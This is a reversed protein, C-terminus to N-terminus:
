NSSTDRSMMFTFTTCHLSCVMMKPEVRGLFEAITGIVLLRSFSDHSALVFCFFFMFVWSMFWIYIDFFKVFHVFEGSYYLVGLIEISNM